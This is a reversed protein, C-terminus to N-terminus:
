NINDKLFEILDDIEKIIIENNTQLKMEEFLGITKSIHNIKEVGNERLFHISLEMATKFDKISDKAAINGSRTISESNNLWCYIAIPITAFKGLEFCMSNFFSDDAYKVRADNKIGWKRIFSVKYLKGHMWTYGNKILNLYPIGEHYTQKHFYSHFMEIKPNAIAM